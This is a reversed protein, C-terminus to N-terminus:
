GGALRRRLMSLFGVHCVLVEGECRGRLLAPEELGALDTRDLQEIEVQAADLAEIRGIVEDDREVHLARTSRRLLHIPLACAVFREAWEGAQRDGDLIGEFDSSHGRRAAELMQPIM